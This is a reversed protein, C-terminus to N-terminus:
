CRGTVLKLTMLALEAQEKTEFYFNGFLNPIAGNKTVISRYTKRDINFIRMMMGTSILYSNDFFYYGDAFHNKERTCRKIKIM